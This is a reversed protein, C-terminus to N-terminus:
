HVFEQFRKLANIVANHSIRGLDEKSGGIDYSRIINDINTALAIWDCNEENCVFDIRKIYDYVTSPKGSPTKSKYGEQILYKEFQDKM